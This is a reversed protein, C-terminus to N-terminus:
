KSHFLSNYFQEFIDYYESEDNFSSKYFTVALKRILKKDIGLDESVSNLIDKQLDREASSRVMSDNIESIAKRLKEKDATNLSNIDATKNNM